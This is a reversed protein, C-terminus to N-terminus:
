KCLSVQYDNNFVWCMDTSNNLGGGVLGHYQDGLWGLKVCLAKAAAAHNDASNLADNWRLIISGAWATAKVRGDRFNTPGLYKTTIAQM